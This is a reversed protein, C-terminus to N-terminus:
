DFAAALSHAIAGRKARRLFHAAHFARWCLAACLWWVASVVLTSAALAVDLSTEASWGTGPKLSSAWLLTIASFLGGILVAQALMLLAFWRINWRVLVLVPSTLLLVLVSLRLYAEPPLPAIATFLVRFWAVMAGALVVGVVFSTTCAAVIRSALRSEVIPGRLLGPRTPKRTRYPLAEVSM